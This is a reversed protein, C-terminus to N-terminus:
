PADKRSKVACARIGDNFGRIMEDRISEEIVSAIARGIKMENSNAIEMRRLFPLACILAIILAMVSLPFPHILREMFDASILEIM